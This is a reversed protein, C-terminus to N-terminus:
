QVEGRARGRELGLEDIVAPVGQEFITARPCRQGIRELGARIRRREGRDGRLHLGHRQDPRHGDGIRRARRGDDGGARHLRHLPHDPLEHDRQRRRECARDLQGPRVPRARRREGRHARRPRLRLLDAHGSQVAISDPGAGASNVAAVKFTYATGPSLGSIVKSGAPAAVNVPTQAASGIFPTIRYSTIASGGDSAPATWSVTAQGLGATAAVNTVQGPPQAAATPTFLVDVWYNSAQYTNTPFRSTSGYIYVGNASTGNALAHLPSNDVGNALTPGNVSYHGSPALYAAVYTTNAQIAVPSTFKVQQWGSATEGTFNAQALRTGSANWLSGIHTGGNAAAKYFRIGSITGALDSRFKVGLEVASPDGSDVVAPTSLDFITGYPTIVASAASDPGTGGANIAAVKFTYATGNTLGGISATTAPSSATTPAQATTGIYPTIRYGTIPSGGNSAPATWSLQAGSTKGIAAVGTPAGPPAAVTEVTFSRTAIGQNGAGDTARM